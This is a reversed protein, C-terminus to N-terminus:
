LMSKAPQKLTKTKNCCFESIKGFNMLILEIDISTYLRDGTSMLLCVEISMAHVGISKPFIDSNQQLTQKYGVLSMM